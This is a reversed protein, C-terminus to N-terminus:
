EGHFHHGITEGGRDACQVTSEVRFAHGKRLDEVVDMTIEGFFIETGGQQANVVYRFKHSEAFGRVETVCKVSPSSACRGVRPRSM